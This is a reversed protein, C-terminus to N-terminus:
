CTKVLRIILRNIIKIGNINARIDILILENLLLGLKLLFKNEFMPRQETLCQGGIPINSGWWHGYANFIGRVFSTVQQEVM